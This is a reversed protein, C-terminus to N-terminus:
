KHLNGTIKTPAGILHVTMKRAQQKKVGKCKKPRTGNFRQNRVSPILNKRFYLVDGGTSSNKAPTFKLIKVLTARALNGSRQCRSANPMAFCYYWFYVQAFSTPHSVEPVSFGGFAVIRILVLLRRQATMEIQRMWM